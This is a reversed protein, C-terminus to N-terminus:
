SDPILEANNYIITTKKIRDIYLSAQEKLLHWTTHNEYDHRYKSQLILAIIYLFHRDSYM